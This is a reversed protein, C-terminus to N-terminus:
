VAPVPGPLGRKRTVTTLSKRQEKVAVSEAVTTALSFLDQVSEPKTALLLHAKVRPHLNQLIRHVLRSEPGDSGLIDAVAAAAMIYSNLDLVYSALFREKVRPPLFNNVIESRVMGCNPNTSLHAGLIQTIRESTRSALLSIFEFDTVLNLVYVRKVAMFFKLINEPDTDALFPIIKM